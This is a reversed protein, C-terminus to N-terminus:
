AVTTDSSTAGYVGRAYPAALTSGSVMLKISKPDSLDLLKGYLDLASLEVTLRTGGVAAPELEARDIVARYVPAAADDARAVRGLGGLWTAAVVLALAAGRIVRTASRM